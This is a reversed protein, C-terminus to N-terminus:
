EPQNSLYNWYRKFLGTIYVYSKFTMKIWVYILLPMVIVILKNYHWAASFDFHLVSLVSRTLGCGYCDRGFINKFLCITHQKNLWEVPILYLLFPLIPIGWRKIQEVIKNNILKNLMMKLDNKM